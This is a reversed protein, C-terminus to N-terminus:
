DAIREVYEEAAVHLVHGSSRFCISLRPSPRAAPATKFAVRRIVVDGDTGKLRVAAQYRTAPILSSDARWRTDGARLTGAVLDHGSTLRVTTMTANRAVFAPHTTWPIKSRPAPSMRLLPIKQAVASDKAAGDSSGGDSGSEGGTSCGALVLMAASLCVWGAKHHRRGDRGM